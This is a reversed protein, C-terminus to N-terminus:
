QQPKPTEPTGRSSPPPVERNVTAGPAVAPGDPATAPPVMAWLVAGLVFIAAIVGITWTTGADPTVAPRSDRAEPRDDYTAM